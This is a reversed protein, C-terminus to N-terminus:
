RASGGRLQDQAKRARELEQPVTNLLGLSDVMEGITTKPDNSWFIGRDESESYRYGVKEGFEERFAKGNRLKASWSLVVYSLDIEHVLTSKPERIQAVVLGTGPELLSANNRFSSSLVWYQHEAAYMAPRILQPSQTPFLVIEAGKEKLRQWGEPYSVDYCIQIGVRGFDLDIVNYEEGPSVGGELVITGDQTAKDLVPHVKDYRGALRGDRDFVIAANTCTAASSEQQFVGGVVLNCRYKRALKGLPKLIADDIPLSIENAVGVKGATLAYETFLALDLSRGYITQSEQSMESLLQEIQAIRGGLGPYKSYWHTMTTGVIVKRPLSSHSARVNAQSEPEEGTAIATLCLLVLHIVILRRSRCQM